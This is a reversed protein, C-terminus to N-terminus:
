LRGRGDGHERDGPASGGPEFLAFKLPMYDAPDHGMHEKFFIAAQLGCGHQGIGAGAQLDFVGGSTAGLHFGGLHQQAELRRGRAVQHGRGLRDGVLDVDVEEPLARRGVLEAKAVQGALVEAARGAGRLRGAHQDLQRRRGDIEVALPAPSEARRRGLGDLQRQGRQLAPSGLAAMASMACAM